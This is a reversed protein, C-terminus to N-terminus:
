NKILIEDCEKYKGIKNFYWEKFGTIYIANIYSIKTIIKTEFNDILMYENHNTSLTM